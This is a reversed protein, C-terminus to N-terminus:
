WLSRVPRSPPPPAPQPAPAPAREELSSLAGASAFPLFYTRGGPTWDLNSMRGFLPVFTFPETPPPPTFLLLRETKLYVGPQGDKVGTTLTFHTYDVQETTPGGVCYYQVQDRTGYRVFPQCRGEARYIPTQVGNVRFVSAIRFGIDNFTGDRLDPTLALSMRQVFQDPNAGFDESTFSRTYFNARNNPVEITQYTANPDPVQSNQIPTPAAGALPAVVGAGIGAITLGAIGSALSLGWRSTGSRM